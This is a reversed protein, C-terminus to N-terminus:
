ESRNFNVYEESLDTTLLTYEEDGQNLNILISFKKRSVVEKWLPKNEFVPTGDILVPVEEYSIDLKHEEIGVKAYGAADVLRGWNPDNGYWSTKVLLSNGISRAVKEASARDKAGSVLLEIVHTIKEGDGVIKSGLDRSVYTVAHKFKKMLKEDSERLVVQSSGNALLLVTDNTSMDGDITLSNFSQDVAEKLVNQLIANSTKIDTVIFALMTAMNPEIMGAGKAIGSVTIEDGDHEFRVTCIKPKTDSTLIANAANLGQEPDESVSSCAENIGKELRDMPLQVGIRGTSAVLFSNRPAALADEALRVMEKADRMGKLGTCANANGSNAIFGHVSKANALREMCLRVPAAKIDNTTFVGAVSCPEISYLVATDLRKDGKGRVDCSVGAVKFGPVDTLGSPSEIVRM